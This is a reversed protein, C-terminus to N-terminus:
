CRPLTVLIGSARVSWSGSTRPINFYLPKKGGGVSQHSSCLAFFFFLSSRSWLFWLIFLLHMNRSKEFSGTSRYSGGIDYAQKRESKPTWLQNQESLWEGKDQYKQGCLGLRTKQLKGTSSSSWDVSESLHERVAAGGLARLSVLM